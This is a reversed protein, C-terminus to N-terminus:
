ARNSGGRESTFTSREPMLPDATSFASKPLVQIDFALGTGEPLSLPLLWLLPHPGLTAKVDEYWGNSYSIMLSAGRTRKECMEITTMAMFTLYVHLILFMTLLLCM